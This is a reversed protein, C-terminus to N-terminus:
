HLTGLGAYTSAALPARSRVMAKAQGQFYTLHAKDQDGDDENMAEEISYRMGSWSEDILKFEDWPPYCEIKEYNLRHTKLGVLGHRHVV